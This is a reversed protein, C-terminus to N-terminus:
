QFYPGVIPKLTEIREAPVKSKDTIFASALLGKQPHPGVLETIQSPMDSSTQALAVNAKSPPLSRNWLSMTMGEHWCDYDTSMALTAYSIEAERCAKAEPLNTMQYQHAGHGTSIQNLEDLFCTRGYLCLHWWRARHCRSRTVCSPSRESFLAFPTESHCM